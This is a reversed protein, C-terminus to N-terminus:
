KPRKTRPGQLDEAVANLNLGVGMINPQLMVYRNLARMPEALARMLAPLGTSAKADAIANTLYLMLNLRREEFYPAGTKTVKWLTLALEMRTKEKTHAAIRTAAYAHDYKEGDDLQDRDIADFIRKAEDERGQALICESLFVSTIASPAAALAARYATEGEPWHKAHRHCEGLQHQLSAEGEPTWCDHSLLEGLLAAAEDFATPQEDITGVITLANALLSKARLTLGEEKRATAIAATFATEAALHDGVMAYSFGKLCAYQLHDEPNDTLELIRDCIEVRRTLSLADGYLAVYSQLIEIDDEERTIEGLKQFEAEATALDGRYKAAQSQYYTIKRQWRPHNMNGRLRELTKPIEVYLKQHHLAICLDGVIGALANLDIGIFYAAAPSGIAMLPETNTKHWITYQTLDGRSAIVAAAWDGDRWAAHNKAGLTSGPLRDRCCTSYALGSGCLCESHDEPRYPTRPTRPQPRLKM